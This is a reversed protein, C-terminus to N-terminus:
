LSLGLQIRLSAFMLSEPQMQQVPEVLVTTTLGEITQYQSNIQCPQGRGAHGLALRIGLQHTSSQLLHRGGHIGPQWEIDGEGFEIHQAAKIHDILLQIFLGTVSHQPHGEVGAATLAFGPLLIQRQEPILPDVIEVAIQRLHHQGPEIGGLAVGEERKNTLQRTELIIHGAQEIFGQGNFLAFWQQHAADIDAGNILLTDREIGKSLGSGPTVAQGLRNVGGQAPLGVGIKHALQERRDDEGLGMQGSFIPQMGEITTAPHGNAQTAQREERRGQDTAPVVEVPDVLLRPAIYQGLRLREGLGVLDSVFMGETDALQWTEVKNALCGERKAVVAFPHRQHCVKTEILPILNAGIHFAGIQLQQPQTEQRGLHLSQQLIEVTCRSAALLLEGDQPHHPHEIVGGTAVLLQHLLVHGASPLFRERPLPRHLLLQHPM